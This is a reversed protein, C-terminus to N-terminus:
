TTRKAWFSLLKAFASTRSRMSDCINILGAEEAGFLLVSAELTRSGERTQRGTSSVDLVAFPVYGFKRFYVRDSKPWIYPSVVYKYVNVQRGITNWEPPNIDGDALLASYLENLNIGLMAAENHYSVAFHSVINDASSGLFM